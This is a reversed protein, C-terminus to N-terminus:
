GTTASIVSFDSDKLPDFNAEFKIVILILLHEVKEEM